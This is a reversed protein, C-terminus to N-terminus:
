TEHARLHTYSVADIGDLREAVISLQRRHLASKVLLEARLAAIARGAEDHNRGTQQPLIGIRALRLNKFREAAIDAAAGAGHFDDLRHLIGGGEVRLPYRRSRLPGPACYRDRICM